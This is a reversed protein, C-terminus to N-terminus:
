RGEVAWTYLDNWRVLITGIILLGIFWKAFTAGQRWVAALILMILLLVGIRWGYQGFLLKDTVEARSMSM